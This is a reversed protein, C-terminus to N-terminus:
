GKAWWVQWGESTKNKRAKKDETKILHTKLVEAAPKKLGSDELHWLKGGSRKTEKPHAM